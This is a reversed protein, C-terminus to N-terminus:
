IIVLQAAKKMIETIKVIMMVMMIRSVTMANIIKITYLLTKIKSM